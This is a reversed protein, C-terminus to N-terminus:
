TTEALDGKCKDKGSRTPVVKSDDGLHMRLTGSVSVTAPHNLKDHDMDGLEKIAM